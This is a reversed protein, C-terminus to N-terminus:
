VTVAQGLVTTLQGALWCVVATTVLMMVMPVVTQGTLVVGLAVGDDLALAELLTGTTEPELELLATTTGTELVLEELRVEVVTTMGIPVAPVELVVIIM